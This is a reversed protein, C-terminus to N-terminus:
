AMEACRNEAARPGPVVDLEDTSMSGNLAQLVVPVRFDPNGQAQGFSRLSQKALAKNQLTTSLVRLGTDGGLDSRM